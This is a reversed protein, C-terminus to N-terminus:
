RSVSKVVQTCETTLWTVGNVLRGMIWLDDAGNDLWGGLLDMVRMEKERRTKTREVMMTSVWAWAWRVPALLAHAAAPQVAVTYCSAVVGDVAVTGAHTHPAYLGHTHVSHIAVVPQVGYDLTHVAMVHPKIADAPLLLSSSAFSSSSSLSLSLSSSSQLTLETISNNNNNINTNIGQQQNRDNGDLMLVVPVYHKPSVMLKQGSKTVIEVFRVLGSDRVRHSFAFVKSRIMKEGQGEGKGVVVCDGIELDQMRVNQGDCRRATADAPFCETRRPESGTIADAGGTQEQQQGGLSPSPGPTTPSPFPIVVPTDVHPVIKTSPMPSISGSPSLSPVIPQQQQTSDDLTTTTTDAANAQSQPPPSSPSPLITNSPSPTPRLKYSSLDPILMRDVHQVVGQRTRLPDIINLLLNASEIMTMMNNNNKQEGGSNDEDSGHAAIMPVLTLGHREVTANREAWTTWSLSFVYDCLSMRAPTVHNRVIATLVTKPYMFMKTFKVIVEYAQMESMIKVEDNDDDDDDESSSQSSFGPLLAPYASQLDMATQILALDRPVFLTSVGSLGPGPSSEYARLSLDLKVAHALRLFVDYDNPNNDFPPSTTISKSKSKSKSQTSLHHLAGLHTYANMDHYIFGHCSPHDTDFELPELVVDGDDDAGPYLPPPNTTQRHVTTSLSRSLSVATAFHISCSSSSLLIVLLLLFPSLLVSSFPSYKAVLRPRLRFSSFSRM